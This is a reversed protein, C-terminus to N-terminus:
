ASIKTSLSRLIRINNKTLTDGSGFGTNEARSVEYYISNNDGNTHANKEYEVHLPLKCSCPKRVMWYKEVEGKVCQMRGVTGGM